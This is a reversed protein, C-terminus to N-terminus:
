RHERRVHLALGNSRQGKNLDRLLAQTSTREYWAEFADMSEFTFQASLRTAGAETQVDLKTLPPQENLRQIIPLPLALTASSERFESQMTVQVISEREDANSEAEQQAHAPSAWTCLALLALAFISTRM